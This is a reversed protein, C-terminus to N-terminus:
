IKVNKVIQGTKIPTKYNNGEKIIGGEKIEPDLL